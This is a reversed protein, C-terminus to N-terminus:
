ATQGSLAVAEVETLSLSTFRTTIQPWLSSPATTASPDTTTPSRWTQGNPTLRAEFAM